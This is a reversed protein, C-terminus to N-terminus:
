CACKARAYITKPATEFYQFLAPCLWGDQDYDECRYWNGGYETRLWDLRVLYGPFPEESFLLTFGKDADEINETLRDLMIDIGAIFAERVLGTSNDDFVWTGHFKYPQLCLMSNM